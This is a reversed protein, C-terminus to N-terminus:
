QEVAKPVFIVAVPALLEHSWFWSTENEITFWHEGRRQFVDGESDRVVASHPLDEIEKAGTLVRPTLREVEVALALVGDVLERVKAPHIMIPGGMMETVQSDQIALAASIGRQAVEDDSTPTLREIKEAQDVITRCLSLTRRAPITHDHEPTYGGDPEFQELDAKVIEAWKLDTPIPPTTPTDSV